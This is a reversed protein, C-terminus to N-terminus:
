KRPLAFQVSQGTQPLDFYVEATETAIEFKLEESITQSAGAALSLTNEDIVDNEGTSWQVSVKYQYTASQNSPNEVTFSFPVLQAQTVSQPLSDPNDIAITAAPLAAPASPQVSAQQPAPASSAPASLNAGFFVYLAGLIPILIVVVLPLKTRELADHISM